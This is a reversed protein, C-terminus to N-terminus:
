HIPTGKQKRRDSDQPEELFNLFIERNQDKSKFNMGGDNIGFDHDDWMGLVKTGSQKM